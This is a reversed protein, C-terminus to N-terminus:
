SSSDVVVLGRAPIVRGQYSPRRRPNTVWAMFRPRQPGLAKRKEEFRDLCRTLESPWPRELYLPAIAETILDRMTFMIGVFAWRVHDSDKEAHRLRWGAPHSFDTAQEAMLFRAHVGFESYAQYMEYAAETEPERILASDSGFLVRREHSSKNEMGVWENVLQPERKLKSAYAMCEIPSRMISMAEAGNGRLCLDVASAYYRISALVLSCKARHPKADVLIGFSAYAHQAAMFLEDAMELELDFAALNRDRADSEDSFYDALVLVENSQIGV